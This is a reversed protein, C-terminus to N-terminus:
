RPPSRAQPSSAATARLDLAEAFPIISRPPRSSALSLGIGAAYLREAQARTAQTMEHNSTILTGDIDSVVLAISPRPASTEAM